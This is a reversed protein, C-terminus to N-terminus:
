HAQIEIRKRVYGTSYFRNDADIDRIVKSLNKLKTKYNRDDWNSTAYPIYEKYEYGSKKLDFLNEVNYTAIKLSEGGFALIFVSILLFFIKM